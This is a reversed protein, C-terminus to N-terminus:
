NGCGCGCKVNNNDCLGNCGTVKELLREAEEFQEMDALYSIVNIASWLLDRKYIDQHSVKSDCRISAASNLVKSAADVYCKRLNCLQFYYYFAMKIHSVEPNVNIIEDLSVERLGKYIKENKYYYPEKDSLPVILRCLTYYGDQRINFVIKEEKQTRVFIQSYTKGDYKNLQLIYIYVYNPNFAENQIITNCNKDTIIKNCNM